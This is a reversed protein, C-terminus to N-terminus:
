MDPTRTTIPYLEEVVEGAAENKKAEYRIEEANAKTELLKIEAADDSRRALHRFMKEWLKHKFAAMLKPNRAFALPMEATMTKLEPLHCPGTLIYNFVCDVPEGDVKRLFLTGDKFRWRLNNEPVCLTVEEGTADLVDVVSM